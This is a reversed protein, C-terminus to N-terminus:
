DQKKVIYVGCAMAILVLLIGGAIMVYTHGGTSIAVIVDAKDENDTADKEDFGAENESSVISAVNEKTGINGDGNQWDLVVEYTESEGPALEKTERTATSGNVAWGSNNETNMTMGAPINEMITAKGSLESDNTVKILYKVQVKATMVDKRYVEVKALDGNIVSEAGNVSVSAVTKDIKLNFILKRYYYDVYTTNEVIDKGNEDKTVTVRMNGKANAPSDSVTYYRIEKAVTTYEDDQHGTIMDETALEAKTESDYYRVVVNAPRKYYYVVDTPENTMKGNKNAPEEVLDFGDVEKAETSYDDGAKGSINIMDAVDAGTVKDVFRVNVESNRVYYYTVYIVDRSMTGNANDPYKDDVLSYDPISEEHTEYADGEYGEIKSEDKLQKGTTLDVHNVVVGGSVHVYYYTVTIDDKTMEGDADVPVEALKYGDVVKRKTVYADGEHGNIVEDEAVPEGTTRDVYKATVKSKYIYYYTVEISSVTMTGKANDPLRDEVLDYGPIDRSKIEYEEGEAGEHVENYLTAGSIVDIHKEIVGASVHAYYYTLTIEEKTMKVTKEAPEEVLVYDPFSKSETVFDEGELGETTSSDLIKGTTKDVYQVTAKTKFLYYYTITIPDVEFKGSENGSHEVLQYGDIVKSGVTYEDDVKGNLVEDPALVADTGKELYRVNVVADKVRYYYIVEITEETMTGTVKEPTGALEYKSPIDDAPVTTYADDVRGDIVVDESLKNTTGEEYHRVVVQATRKRFFYIVEITDETMTGTANAPTEVLEYKSPIDDAMVTVYEDNVRGKIVTDESLKNTTGEEYYHAVVSADKLRYYYTVEIDGDIFKGSANDPEASVTYVSKSDDIAKTLYEAGEEGRLVEDEANTGNKLPVPTTTGEIYHHVTVTGKHKRNVVTITAGDDGVTVRQETNEPADYGDPVSTEVIDYEGPEVMFMINGLTDTKDVLDTYTEITVKNIIFNDPYSETGDTPMAYTAIDGIENSSNIVASEDASYTVVPDMSTPSPRAINYMFELRYIKGGDLFVSSTDHIPEEPAKNSYATGYIFKILKGNEDYLGISTEGNGTLTHEIDLEFTGVKDSLDLLMYSKAMTGYLGTNESVYEGNENQVFGYKISKQKYIKVSKIKCYNSTVDSYRYFGGLYYKDGGEFVGRVTVTGSKNFYHALVDGDDLTEYGFSAEGGNLEVEMEVVYKGSYGSLDIEIEINSALLNGDSDYKYTSEYVGDKDVFEGYEDSTSGMIQDYEDRTIVRKDIELEGADYDPANYSKGNNVLEQGPLINERKSYVKFSAGSVPNGEDDVKNITLPVKKKAYYYTVEIGDNSFIGTANDPTNIVTYGDQLKDTLPETIYREGEEGYKVEDVAETGDKLVVKTRTGEYYHHVLVTASKKVYNYIVEITGDSYEGSANDPLVYEGNEDLELGYKTLTTKPSTAYKEGALGEYREDAAVKSTTGKIYHHVIVESKKDDEVTFEHVNDVSDNFDINLSEKGIIYGSPAKTETITYKGYPVQTIAQGYSNTTVETHYLEESGDDVQDISFVAGALPEKTNRDVKNIIIKNSTLAYKVVIHEDETVNDFKPLVFEGSPIDDISYDIGNITIGVIEYGEDPTMVIDKTTSDGYKVKEFYESGDGSISGGKNGDIEQVETTIKFEKRTNEVELKEQEPVGVVNSIKAIYGAYSSSTSAIKSDMSVSSAWSWFTAFIDGSSNEVILKADDQKSSGFGKAWETLGVENYKVIVGDYNGKNEVIVRGDINLGSDLTANVVVGNDQTGYIGEISNMSSTGNLRRGWSPNGDKDVKVVFASSLYNSGNLSLRIEDGVYLYQSGTWGGIAYGGDATPTLYHVYDNYSGGIGFISQCNGNSDYRVVAVDNGGQSTYQKGDECELTGTDFNSALIYNNNKTEVVSVKTLSAFNAISKGWQYNGDADFKVIMADKTGKLKLVNNADIQFDSTGFYGGIVYGGDATGMVSTITVDGVGDFEKTDIVNGLSDCKIITSSGWSYDTIIFGGDATTTIRAGEGWSKYRVPKIWECELASNYKIMFANDSSEDKNCVVNNGFDSNRSPNVIGVIGGDDTAVMDTLETGDNTTVSKLKTTDYNAIATKEMRVVMADSNPTGTIIKGNSFRIDSSLSGGVVISDDTFEIVANIKESGAGGLNSAWEFAGDSNYKVLYGDSNGNSSLKLGNNFTVTDILEGAVIYGDDETKIVRNVTNSFGNSISNGWETEGTKSFKVLYCARGSISLNVKDLTVAGAVFGGVACGGDPTAVVSTAYESNSSGIKKVWECAGNSDYKAVYGDYYGTTSLEIGNGFSMKSSSFSGVIVYGGDTTSEVDYVSDMSTGGVTNVWEVTGDKSYKVILGDNYGASTVSNGDGVDLPGYLFNGAVLYGDDSTGSISGLSVSYSGVITKLFKANGDKDLKLLYTAAYGNSNTAVYGNGVDLTGKGFTGVVVYDGDTTQMVDNVSGYGETGISKAWEINEDADYKILFGDSGGHGELVVGNGLGWSDASYTGGALYGGDATNILTATEDTGDGGIVTGSVGDYKEAGERSGGIGFYHESNSVDYKDPAQVEVAKYSGEPLDVTIEGQENTELVYYQKGDITEKTGVIEGKGNRAPVVNDDVNYIAFKVGAIGEGTESDKKVIKFTPVDEVNIKVVNGDTTYEYEKDGFSVFKLDESTGDVRFIIDKVKTYGDPALVEKLTYRGEEDKGSVYQYLGDITIKGNEDSIYTGIEKSGKYLKFKAGALVVQEVQQDGDAPVDVMKKVKTLELTYTPIKVDELKLDVVPINDEYSIASEKVDGDLISLTYDDGTDNVEFMVADNLYYGEAKVEELIYKAGVSLGAVSIEGNADTTYYKEINSGDKTLKFKVGKLPITTGTEYKTIKLKSKVNDEVQMTIKSTGRGSEDELVESVIDGKVTGEQKEVELSGDEKVHAIFKIVDDNLEYNEPSKIEQITYVAEAYLNQLVLKGESNTVATKSQAVETDTAEKTVKYTAGPVLENKNLRYKDIELSYKEAIRIGIKNPETKSKYKGEPTNLTFYIGHHSYAVKNYEVNNPIRVTYYFTYDDRVEIIEDKFDILYSKINDWNEVQDALKWGNDTNDLEKDPNENESYYVDIRGQLEDPIEIGTNEMKTTFQSGLDGESLVYTNGKFPIKGLIKVENLNNPYNNTLQVGIKVTKEEQAKDTTTLQPKVDVVQPSIVISGKDDFGTIIENTLLSNPSVMYVSTETKHVLEEVNLNDNVDYIDESGYYYSSTATNAAYLEFYETTSAIRPDPTLNMSLTINFVQLEDTKNKTNVKVFWGNDNEFCEYSVIDIDKNNINVGNLEAVLINEPLKVLFSGDEWSVQNADENGKAEIQLVINKETVQTSLINKSISLSALSFQEEYCAKASDVVKEKSLLSIYGTTRIYEIKDFDDKSINKTIYDDDLTKELVVSMDKYPVVDSTEVRVYKVPTEFKYVNGATYKALDNKNFEVILEDTDDDYIKIWGGDVIFDTAYKFSVGTVSVFPEMSIEENMSNIFVDSNRQLNIDVARAVFGMSNQRSLFNWSVDYTDDNEEDSLGNYIRLPKYKSVVYRSEPNVILRGVSVSGGFSASDNSHRFGWVIDKSVENSKYPNTFEKNANNYGLFYTKLKLSVHTVLEDKTIAEIPYKVKVNYLCASSVSSTINGSANDVVADRKITFTKTEEDYNFFSVSNECTVSIPDYGNLQSVVGEVYNENISLEKNVESATFDLDFTITGNALDEGDGVVKDDYSTKYLSAYTTGYWDMQLNIEKRIETENGEGDVYTGTFIIKNDDRSLNNINDGIASAKTSSYGYDGSRVVGSMLKQTGSGINNFEMVKTNDSIYNNKFQADKPIGTKLYFNKGDVEIKGNKLVGATQVNVEMYLTDERGVQRCTGKIKEADGDGDLDRLFFASFKVNDTGDVNEDGPLFQDYTMARALEPDTVGKENNIEKQNNMIVAAVVLVAVMFVAIVGGILIKRKGEGKFKNLM